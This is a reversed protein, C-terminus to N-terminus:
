YLRGLGLRLRLNWGLLWEGILCGALRLLDGRRCRVIIGGVVIRIMLAIRSLSCVLVVIPITLTLFGLLARTTCKARRTMVRLTLVGSVTRLWSIALMFRLIAAVIGRIRRYRSLLGLRGLLHVLTLTRLTAIRIAIGIGVILLVRLISSRVHVLHAVLLMSVALVSGHEVINASLTVVVIHRLCTLVAVAM